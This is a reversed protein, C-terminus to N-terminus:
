FESIVQTAAMDMGCDNSVRCTITSGIDGPVANYTNGTVGSIVNNDRFWTRTVDTGFATNCNITAPNGSNLCLRSGIDVTQDIGTGTGKTQDIRGSFLFCFPRPNYDSRREKGLVETTAQSSGCPNSATCTYDGTSRATITSGSQSGGGPTSWSFTVDSVSENNFALNCVLTVSSGVGTRSICTRTGAPVPINGPNINIGTERAVTPAETFIFAIPHASGSM